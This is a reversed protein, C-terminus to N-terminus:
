FINFINMFFTTFLKNFLTTLLNFSAIFIPIGHNIFHSSLLKHTTILYKFYQFIWNWLLWACQLIRFLLVWLLYYSSFFCIYRFNTWYPFSWFSLFNLYLQCRHKRENLQIMLSFHIILRLWLCRIFKDFAHSWFINPM